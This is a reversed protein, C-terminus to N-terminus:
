NELVVREYYGLPRSAYGDLMSLDNEWTETAPFFFENNIRIVPDGPAEDAGKPVATLVGFSQHEMDELSLGRNPKAEVIMKM